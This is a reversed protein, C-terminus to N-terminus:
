LDVPTLAAGFDADAHCTAIAPRMRAAAATVRDTYAALAADLDRGAGRDAVKAQAERVDEFETLVARASAALTACDAKAALVEALADFLDASRAALTPLDESLAPPVALSVDSGPLQPMREIVEIVDPDGACAPLAASIRAELAAADAARANMAVVALKAAADDAQVKVSLDFLPKSIDFIAALDAAMGPCDHREARDEVAKAMADLVDVFGAAFRQADADDFDLKPAADPGPPPGADRQTGGCAALFVLLFRKM